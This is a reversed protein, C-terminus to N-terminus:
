SNSLYLNFNGTNDIDSVGSPMSYSAAALV